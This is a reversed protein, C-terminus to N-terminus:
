HQSVDAAADNLRQMRFAPSNVVGMIYTSMRHENAEAARVIARVTPMDWPEVRRGLAYAMLNETFTRLLPTPRELLADRLDRPSAVPTGDYLEGKTDLPMGHEKIRWKGTVDFNDLALGIPDM